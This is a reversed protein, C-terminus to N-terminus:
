QMGLSTEASTIRQADLLMFKSQRNPFYLAFGDLLGFGDFKNM